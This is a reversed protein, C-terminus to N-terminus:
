KAPDRSTRESAAASCAAAQKTGYFTGATDTGGSTYFEVQRGGIKGGDLM